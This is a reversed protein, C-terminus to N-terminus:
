GGPAMALPILDAFHDLAARCAITAVPSRHYGYTMLVFPIGAAAAAAADVESDGVFLVAEATAGCAEVITTLPRPDPKRWPLTDGGVIRSFFGDLGLAGLVVRTIAEPKNTCLALTAGSQALRGLTEAVGPYLTTRAAPAGRYIELFRAVARDRDVPAGPRAALGRDVLMGVGDGIMPRVASLTLPARGFEALLANLAVCLDGASDILTGDLDFIILTPETVDAM